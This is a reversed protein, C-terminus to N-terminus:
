DDLLRQKVADPLDDLTGARRRTMEAAFTRYRDAKALNREAVEDHWAALYTFDDITCEGLAKWGQRTSVPDRLKDRWTRLMAAKVSVGTNSVARAPTGSPHGHTARRASYVQRIYPGLSEILADRLRDDPLVAVVLDAIDAPDVLDTRDLIEEVVARVGAPRTATSATM